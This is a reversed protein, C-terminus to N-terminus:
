SMSVPNLRNEWLLCRISRPRGHACIDDGDFFGTCERAQGYFEGGHKKGILFRPLPEEPKERRMDALAVRPPCIALLLGVLEDEGSFYAPSPVDDTM